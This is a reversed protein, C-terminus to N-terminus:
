SHLCLEVGWERAEQILKQETLNALYTRYADRTTPNNDAELIDNILEIHELQTLQPEM